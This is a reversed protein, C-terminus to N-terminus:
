VGHGAVPRGGPPPRRSGERGHRARGQFDGKVETVLWLGGLLSNTETGKSVTPSASGPGFSEVTADWTGVDGKLVAHEPGPQPGPPMGAPPKDQAAAGAAVLSLCLVAYKLRMRM